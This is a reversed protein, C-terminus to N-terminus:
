MIYLLLWLLLTKKQGTYEATRYWVNLNKTNSQNRNQNNKRQICKHGVCVSLGVPPGLVFSGQKEKEKVRQTEWKEGKVMKLGDCQKTLESCDSVCPSQSVGGHRLGSQASLLGVLSVDSHSLGGDDLHMWGDKEEKEWVSPSFPFANAFVAAERVSTCRSLFPNMATVPDTHGGRGMAAAALWRQSYAMQKEDRALWILRLLGGALRLLTQQSEQSWNHVGTTVGSRWQRDREREIGVCRVCQSMKIKSSQWKEEEM